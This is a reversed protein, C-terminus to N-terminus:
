GNKVRGILEKVLVTGTTTVHQRVKKTIGLQLSEHRVTIIGIYKDTVLQFRVPILISVMLDTQHVHPRLEHLGPHLTAVLPSIYEKFIYVQEETKFPLIVPLHEGAHFTGSSPLPQRGHLSHYIQPCVKQPLQFALLLLFTTIHPLGQIIKVLKPILGESIYLVATIRDRVIQRLPRHTGKGGFPLVGQVESTVLSRLNGGYVMAYDARHLQLAPGRPIIKAFKKGSNKVTASIKQTQCWLIYVQCYAM